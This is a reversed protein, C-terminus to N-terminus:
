IVCCLEGSGLNHWRGCRKSMLNHSLWWWSHTITHRLCLYPAARSQRMMKVYVDSIRSRGKVFCVGSRGHRECGGEEWNHTRMLHFPWVQVFLIFHNVCINHFLMFTPRKSNLQSSNFIRHIIIIRTDDDDAGDINWWVWGSLCTGAVSALTRTFTRSKITAPTATARITPRRVGARCYM